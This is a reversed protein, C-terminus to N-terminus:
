VLNSGKNREVQGLCILFRVFADVRSKLKYLKSSIQQKEEEMQQIERKLDAATHGLTLFTSSYKRLDDVFSLSAGTERVSEMFKHTEKFQEQLGNIQGMLAMIDIWVSDQVPLVPIVHYIGEDQEFEPPIEPISLYPYM